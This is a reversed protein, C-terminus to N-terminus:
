RRQSPLMPQLGGTLRHTVWQSQMGPPVAIQISAPTVTGQPSFHLSAIPEGRQSDAFRLEGRVKAAWAEKAVRNTIERPIAEIAIGKPAITLQRSAPSFTMEWAYGTRIAQKRAEGALRIMASETQQLHLRHNWSRLSPVSVALLVMMMALVLLLEALTFGVRRSRPVM